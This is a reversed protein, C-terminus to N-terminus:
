NSRIRRKKGSVLESRLEGLISAKLSASDPFERLETRIESLIQDKFADLDSSSEVEAQLENLVSTKISKKSLKSSRM